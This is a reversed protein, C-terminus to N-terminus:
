APKGNVLVQFQTEPNEIPTEVRAGSEDLAVSVCGDPCFQVIYSKRIGDSINPGTSHPTLSSFVVIGGARVPAVVVEEPTSQFCNFGLDTYEHELTGERHVGPVVMPCGNEETADVLAIWCTLYQQPEIFTYGNDQHWPFSQPNGPKKYVAQDWYLRVNPGILDHVLDQFVPGRCFDALLKSRHVLQASFTIEDARNIFWTGDESHEKLMKTTDAEFRDLEAIVPQLDASTFADELVFFGERDYLDVQEKSLRRSKTAPRHWEFDGRLPHPQRNM